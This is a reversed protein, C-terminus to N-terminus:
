GDPTGKIMDGVYKDGNPFDRAGWGSGNSAGGDFEGLLKNGNSVQYLGQGHAVAKDLMGHYISGDAYLCKGEGHPQGEHWQGEYVDGRQTKLRGFGHRRGVSFEGVYEDGNPLKESGEGDPEGQMLEGEYVLEGRGLKTVFRGKGEPVGKFFVGVYTHQGSQFSGKGHMKGSRWEGEYSSGDPWVCSGQGHPVDGKLEGVFNGGDLLTMEAMREILKETERGESKRVRRSLCIFLFVSIFLLRM